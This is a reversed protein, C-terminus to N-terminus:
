SRLEKMLRTWQVNYQAGWYQLELFCEYEFENSDHHWALQQPHFSRKNAKTLRETFWGEFYTGPHSQLLGRAYNLFQNFDYDPGDWEDQGATAQELEALRRHFKVFRRWNQQIIRPLQTRVQVAIFFSSDLSRLLRQQKPTLEEDTVIISQRRQHDLYLFKDCFSQASNIRPVYRISELHAYWDIVRQIRQASYTQLLREIQKTWAQMNRRRVARHQKHLAQYLSESLQEAETPEHPTTKPSLDFFGSLVHPTRHRNEEKKKM